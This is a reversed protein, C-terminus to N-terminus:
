GRQLISVTVPEGDWAHDRFSTVRYRQGAIRVSGAAPLSASAAAPLSTRVHGPVRGRVVVDVGYNRHMFRVFGIEDQIALQLTGAV